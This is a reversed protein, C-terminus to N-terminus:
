CEIVKVKEKRALKKAAKKAADYDNQEFAKVTTTIDNQDRSVIWSAKGPESTKDLWLGISKNSM